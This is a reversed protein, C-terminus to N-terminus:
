DVRNLRLPGTFTQHRRPRCAVLLYKSCRELVHFTPIRNTRTAGLTTLLSDSSHPASSDGALIMRSLQQWHATLPRDARKNNTWRHGVYQLWHYYQNHLWSSFDRLPPYPLPLSIDFVRWLVVKRESWSVILQKICTNLIQCSKWLNLQYKLRCLLWWITFWPSYTKHSRRRYRNLDFNASNGYQPWPIAATFAFGLLNFEEQGRIITRLVYDVWGRSWPKAPSIRHRGLGKTRLVSKSSFTSQAISM